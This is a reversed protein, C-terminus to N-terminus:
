GRRERKASTKNKGSHLAWPSHKTQKGVLQHPLLPAAEIDM